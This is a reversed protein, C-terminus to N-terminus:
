FDEPPPEFLRSEEPAIIKIGRKVAAWILNQIGPRQNTYENPSSQMIGWLGIQPINMRECDKIALAIQYAISSTFTCPGFEDKIADEPYAVANPFLKSGDPHCFSMAVKDRMYIKAANDAIWGLYPYPRTRDFVPLHVEFWVDVRPLPGAGKSFGYPTNCPSCAYILWPKDFPARMKTAPHSGLVAIGEYQPSAAPPVDAGAAEQKAGPM